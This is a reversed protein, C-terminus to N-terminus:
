SKETYFLRIITDMLRDEDPYFELFDSGTETRGELTIFEDFGYTSIRRLIDELQTVSRDSVIYEGMKLAADVVFADDAAVIRTKDYLAELYQRQRKMRSLNSSDDVGSRSRVYTLAQNGRLIVREGRVLSPDVGTFDHLVEVEVGGVLDNYVPVADMTFSIYHNIRMGHLLSSVADATNRCSVERGNGYTHALALQATVTDVRQGAVGLVNVRTMTDRNIHLVSCKQAAKDFVLLMVFDARKNNNYSDPQADAEFQDLGLVMFTEVDEKLAYKKGNHEVTTDLPQDVVPFRGQQKDWLRLLLLAASLLFVAFCAVALTRFGARRSNRRNTM